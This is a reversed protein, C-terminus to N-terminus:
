VRELVSGNGSDKVVWGEELLEDRIKDSLAYDKNLRAENRNELLKLLRKDTCIEKELTLLDLSLIKDMQNIVALKDCAPVSKDKLLDWLDALCRPTNLDENIHTVFNDLYKKGSDGISEILGIDDKELLLSIKNRISKLASKAGDLSEWSFTLQTRYHAGLLFYRYDLPKYGKDVLTQLTLFGDKSKSMKGTKNVLFEGHLWRNVWKKGTYAETQAIENTHHINVHDVGGCHIDFTDGLYKLSMASCELHWGPYGKGWPSNWQMAQNEFKSNTFWLVFDQPNKKASDLATSAGYNLDQKELGAMSGYAPFKSTDFYVNGNSVYTFGKDELGKVLKIMDGIHKTARCVIDPRSINLSKTDEFFAKEFFKAIDYVDMGKDRSAKIMKDEGDDGDDTLHGVDTINMCHKVHFNNYNLTKILIDEFFYTRLNGIHAFNYVTPGCCYLSVSNEKISQFETVERGLTNYLKLM